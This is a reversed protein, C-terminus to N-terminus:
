FDLAAANDLMPIFRGRVLMDVREKLKDKNSGAIMSSHFSMLLMAYPMYKQTIESVKDPTVGFYSCCFAGWYKGADDPDIGM